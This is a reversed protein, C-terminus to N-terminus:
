ATTYWRLFPVVCKHTLLGTLALLIAEGPGGCVLCLAALGYQIFAAVVAKKVIRPTAEAPKPHFDLSNSTM